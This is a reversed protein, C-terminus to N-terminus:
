IPTDCRRILSIAGDVDAEQRIQKNQSGITEFVHFSVTVGNEIQSHIYLISMFKM